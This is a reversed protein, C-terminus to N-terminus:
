RPLHNIWHKLIAQLEQQEHLQRFTHEAGAIIHLEKPGPLANFLIRQHSPPTNTDKEGVMLLVPMTLIHAGPLLDYQLRDQMHSWKLKKIRLGNHSTTTRVGNQRWKKLEAPDRIAMSLEGSVVPSIPVLGRVKQPYKQAFLATSIGGLSHGCLVFPEIYWPQTAAWAIVDELDAYYNTITADQYDGDSEGFTNTTDFTVVTYGLELFTEAVARLHPEEKNGGLGHMIFALKGPTAPGESVVCVKQGHRNKIYTKM